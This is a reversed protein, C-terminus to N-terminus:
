SLGEALSFLFYVCANWHFIIFCASILFFIQAGHPFSARKIAKEYFDAIRHVKFLRGIRLLSVSPQVFLLLDIPVLSLVDLIFRGGIEYKGVHFNSFFQCPDKTYNWFTKSYNRVEMGEQIFIKRTMLMSDVAYVLDFFINLSLWSGYFQSYVDGFIFIVTALANYVIGIAVICSWYYYFAANPDI